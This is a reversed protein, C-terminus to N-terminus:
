AVAGYIFRHPFAFVSQVIWLGSSRDANKHPKHEPLPRAALPSWAFQTCDGTHKVKLLPTPKHRKVM